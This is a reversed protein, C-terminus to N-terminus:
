APAQPEIEVPRHPDLGAPPLGASGPADPLLRARVIFHVWRADGLLRAGLRTATRIPAARHQWHRAVSGAGHCEEVRFGQGEFLEIMTARTFFRLHTRDLTGIDAYDWRGRILRWVVVAYQISPIAALIQGGPLLRERAAAVLDEPEVVHEIVDNFCILGFRDDRGAFCGPFYGTVVEDFGPDTRAAVAQEPVAEVGM